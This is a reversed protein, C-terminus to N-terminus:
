ELVYALANLQPSVHKFMKKDTVQWVKVKVGQKRLEVLMADYLKECISKERKGLMCLRYNDGADQQKLGLKVSANASANILLNAVVNVSKETLPNSNSCANMILGLTIIAIIKVVATAHM